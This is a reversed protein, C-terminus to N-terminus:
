YEEEAKDLSLLQDELHYRMAWGEEDLGLDGTTMDLAEIQALL